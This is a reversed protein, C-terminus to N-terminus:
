LFKLLWGFNKWLSLALEIAKIGMEMTIVSSIILTIVVGTFGYTYIVMFFSLIAQIILSVKQFMYGALQNQRPLYQSTTDSNLTVIANVIGDWIHAGGSATSSRGEGPNTPNSTAGGNPIYSLPSYTNGNCVFAQTSLDLVCGGIELYGSSTPLFVFHLHYEDSQQSGWGCHTGSFSGYKLQGLVQGESIGQGESFSQGTDFHFYAVPVPGGDVRIAMTVGDSCVSTITGDSAAVVLPPMVNSGMSDGGVFDVAYSGNIISPTDRHV